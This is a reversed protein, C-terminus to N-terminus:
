QKLHHKELRHMAANLAEEILNSLRPQLVEIAAETVGGKSMVSLRLQELNPKKMTLLASGLFVQNAITLATEQDIGHKSITDSLIETLLFFYAPGSGSIPTLTDILQESSLWILKGTCDFVKQTLDKYIPTLSPSAYALNLSQGIEVAINPMLRVINASAGLKEQFRNISIGTALSVFLASEQYRAYNPLIDLVQQPKVAIVIVDPKFNDPIDTYAPVFTLHALNQFSEQASLTPQVVIIEHFSDNQLWSDLLVKGLKGCGILLLQKRNNTM